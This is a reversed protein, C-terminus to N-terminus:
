GQYTYKRIYRIIALGPIRYLGDYLYELRPKDERTEFMRSRVTNEHICLIQSVESVTYLKEPKIRSTLIYTAPKEKEM